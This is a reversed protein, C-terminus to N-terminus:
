SSKAAKPCKNAYHGFGKCQYCQVEAKSKKPVNEGNTIALHGAGVCSCIFVLVYGQSLHCLMGRKEGKRPSGPPTQPQAAWMFGGAICVGVIISLVHMRLFLMGSNKGKGKGKPKEHFQPKPPAPPAVREDAQGV